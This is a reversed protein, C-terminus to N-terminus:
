FFSINKGTTSAQRVLEAKLLLWDTALVFTEVPFLLTVHRIIEMVEGRVESLLAYVLGNLKVM